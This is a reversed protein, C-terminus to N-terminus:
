NSSQFESASEPCTARGAGGPRVQCPPLAPPPPSAVFWMGSCMIKAGSQHHRRALQSSLSLTYSKPLRFCPSSPPLFSFFFGTSESQSRFSVLLEKIGWFSIVLFAFVSQSVGTFSFNELHFFPFQSKQTFVTLGRQAFILKGLGGSLHCPGRDFVGWSM